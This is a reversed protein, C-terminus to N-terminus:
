FTDTCFNVGAREAELLAAAKDMLAQLAPPVRAFRECYLGSFYAGEFPFASGRAQRPRASLWASVGDWHERFAPNCRRQARPLWYSHHTGISPETYLMQALYECAADDSLTYLHFTRQLHICDDSETDESEHPWQSRLAPPRPVSTLSWYAVASGPWGVPPDM